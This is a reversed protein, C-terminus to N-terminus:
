QDKFDADFGLFRGQETWWGEDEYREPTMEGDTNSDEHLDIYLSAAARGEPLLVNYRYAQVTVKLQRTTSM